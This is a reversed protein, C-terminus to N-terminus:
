YSRIIPSFSDFYYLYVYDVTYMSVDMMRQGTESVIEEVQKDQTTFTDAYHEPPHSSQAEENGREEQEARMMNLKQVHRRCDAANGKGYTQAARTHPIALLSHIDTPINM